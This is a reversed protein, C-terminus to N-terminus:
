RTTSLPYAGGGEFRVRLFDVWILTLDVMPHKQNFNLTQKLLIIINALLVGTHSKPKILM